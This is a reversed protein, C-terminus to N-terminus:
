EEVAADGGSAAEGSSERSSTGEKLENYAERVWPWDLMSCVFLVRKYKGELEVLRGAMHRVRERAQGEPVRPIAPLVAAVFRELPLKKLAYPDPFGGSYAEFREVELDVYQRVMREGIAVRIASIVPQCPDIPVFNMSGEGDGAVAFDTPEVQGVISVLPLAGIAREVDLKFSPPLPVALCDFKEALMIRRIEVAFDGSGHIVPIATIRSSFQFLTHSM